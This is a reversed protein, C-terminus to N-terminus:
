NSGSPESDEVTSSGAQDQVSEGTEPEADNDYSETEAEGAAAETSEQAYWDGPNVRGHTEGEEIAIKLPEHSSCWSYSGCEVFESYYARVGPMAATQAFVRYQGAPVELVYSSGDIQADCYQKGDGAEACVKLDNPLYDSPFSLDGMLKGPNDPLTTDVGREPTEGIQGCAGLMVALCISVASLARLSAM